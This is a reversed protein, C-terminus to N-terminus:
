DALNMVIEKLREPDAGILDAVKTGNKYFHFTPVSAVGSTRLTNSLNEEDIDLKLFTVNPLSRGLNEVIPSMAKCPGCWSATFYVIALQQNDQANALAKSVEEDSSLLLINSSGPSSASFFRISAYSQSYFDRSLQSHESQKFQPLSPLLSSQFSYTKSCLSSVFPKQRFLCSRGRYVIARFMGAPIM